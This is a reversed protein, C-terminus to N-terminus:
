IKKEQKELFEEIYKAFNALNPLGKQINQYTIHRDVKLYDHVVVNRYGTIKIMKKTFSEALIGEKELSKFLDATESSPRELGFTSVIHGAIDICAQIAVQLHHEAAANLDENTTLEKESLPKFRKKLIRIRKNVEEIRTRIRLSDLM